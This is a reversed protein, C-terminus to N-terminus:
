CLSVLQRNFSTPDLALLDSVNTQVALIPQASDDLLELTSVDKIIPKNQNREFHGILEIELGVILDFAEDPLTTTSVFINGLSADSLYIGNEQVYYITGQIRIEEGQEANTLAFEITVLEPGEDIPDEKEECAALGIVFVFMLTFILLLQLRKKTKFM